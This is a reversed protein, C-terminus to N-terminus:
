CDLRRNPEDAEAKEICNQVGGAGDSQYCVTADSFGSFWRFSAEEGCPGYYGSFQASIGQQSTEINMAGTGTSTKSAYVKQGMGSRALTRAFNFPGHGIFIVSVVKLDCSRKANQIVRILESYSDTYSFFVEYQSLKSVLHDVTRPFANNYDYSSQAIIVM